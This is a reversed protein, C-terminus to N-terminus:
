RVGFYKHWKYVFELGIQMDWCNIITLGRLMEVTKLLGAKAM